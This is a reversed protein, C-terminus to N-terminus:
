PENEFTIVRSGFGTIAHRPSTRTVMIKQNYQATPRLELPVEVYTSDNIQVHDWDFYNDFYAEQEAVLKDAINYVDHIKSWNDAFLSTDAVIVPPVTDILTVNFSVESTNNFVDTAVIRVYVSQNTADLV